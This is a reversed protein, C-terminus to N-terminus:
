LRGQDVAAGRMRKVIVIHLRAKLAMRCHRHRRDDQCEALPVPPAALIYQGCKRGADIRFAPDASIHAHCM